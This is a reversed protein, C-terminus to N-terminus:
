RRAEGPLAIQMVFGCRKCSLILVLVCSTALVTQATASGDKSFPMNVGRDWPNQESFTRAVGQIACPGASHWEECHCVVCVPPALGDRRIIDLLRDAAGSFYSLGSLASIQEHYRAMDVSPSVRLLRTQAEKRARELMEEMNRKASDLYREMSADSRRRIQEDVEASIAERVARSEPDQENPSLRFVSAKPPTVPKPPLPPLPAAPPLIRTEVRRRFLNRGHLALAVLSLLIAVITM